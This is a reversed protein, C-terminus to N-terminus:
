RWDGFRAKVGLVFGHRDAVDRANEYEGRTPNPRTLLCISAHLIDDNMQQGQMDHLVDLIAKILKRETDTM